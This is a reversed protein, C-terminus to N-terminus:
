QLFVPTHIDEEHGPQQETKHILTSTSKREM